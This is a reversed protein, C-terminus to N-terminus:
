ATPSAAPMSRTSACIASRSWTTQEPRVAARWLPLGGRLPPLRHVAHLRHRRHRQRRAELDRRDPLHAPLGTGRLPQVVHQGQLCVCRSSGGEIYMVRRFRPGPALGNKDKCAIECARCGICDVNNHVFGLQKAPKVPEYTTADRRAQAAQVAAKADAHAQPHSKRGHREIGQWSLLRPPVRQLARHGAPGLRPPAGSRDQPHEVLVTNYAFAGAPSPEDLTLFDPNGARDVGNADLDMWAGEYLVAVSPMCRETVYAPVVCRGRDNWVEVTDGTRHGPAQRRSANITVEQHLNRAALRHQSLDLAHARAPAAHDPPLPVDKAKPHNLSEFPEIWKPIAPIPYGYQTKTWDTIPWTPALLNRDQGLTEFPEGKEIQERFAVHPENFTFKYVGHKKFEEWSM